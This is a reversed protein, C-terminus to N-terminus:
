LKESLYKVLAPRNFVARVEKGSKKTRILPCFTENEFGNVLEQRAYAILEPSLEDEEHGAEKAAKKILKDLFKDSSGGRVAEFSGLIKDMRNDYIDDHGGLKMGTATFGTLMEVYYGMFFLSAATGTSLAVSVGGTGFTIASVVLFNRLDRHKSARHYAIGCPLQQTLGSNSPGNGANGAFVQSSLMLGCVAAAISRSLVTKKM